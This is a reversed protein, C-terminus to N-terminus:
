RTTDSIQSDALAKTQIRELQTTSVYARVHAPLPM